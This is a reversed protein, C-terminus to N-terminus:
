RRSAGGGAQAADVLEVVDRLRRREDRLAHQVFALRREGEPTLSLRVVRGDAVGSERMVLGAAETRQILETMTSQALRMRAGLETITASESGDAAGKIMLMLLHRQPTLGHERACRESAGLFDRLAARLEAAAQYESLALQPANTNTRSRSM